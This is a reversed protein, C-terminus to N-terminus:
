KATSILGFNRFFYKFTKRFERIDILSNQLEIKSRRENILTRYEFAQHLPEAMRDHLLFFLNVPLRTM